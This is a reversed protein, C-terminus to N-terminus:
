DIICVLGLREEADEKFLDMTEFIDKGEYLEIYLNEYYDIEENSLLRNTDNISVIDNRTYTYQITQSIDGVQLTCQMIREGTCGTLIGIMFLTLILLTKKM